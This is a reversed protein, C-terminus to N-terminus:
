PSTEQRAARRRAFEADIRANAEELTLLLEPHKEVQELRREFEARWEPDDMPDDYDEGALEGVLWDQDAEPLARIQELLKVAADSM